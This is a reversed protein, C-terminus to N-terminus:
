ASATRSPEGPDGGCAAAVSALVALLGAAVIGRWVTPRM